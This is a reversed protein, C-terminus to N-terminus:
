GAPLRAGAGVAAGGLARRSRGRSLKGEIRPCDHERTWRLVELTGAWLPWYVTWADWPCHHARAWRLVELHGVGAARSHREGCGVPVRAAAGM